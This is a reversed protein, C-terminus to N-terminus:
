SVLDPNGRDGQHPAAYERPYSKTGMCVGVRCTEPCYALSYKAGLPNELAEAADFDILNWRRGMRVINRPKVDGHVRGKEHVHQLAGAVDSAIHAVAQVDHGAIRMDTIVDKLNAILVPCQSLLM